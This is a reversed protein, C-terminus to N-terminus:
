PMQEQMSIITERVTEPLEKKGDRDLSATDVPRAFEVYIDKTKVFPMHTRIIENTHKIAVPVVPCGTRTAVKFSGAKFEAVKGTRSRTGEPFIFISIGNNIKRISENIVSLAQKIDSRDLFTCEILRM